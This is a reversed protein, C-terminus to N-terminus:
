IIWPIRSRSLAMRIICPAYAICRVWDRHGPIAGMMVSDRALQCLSVGLPSTRFKNTAMVSSLRSPLHICHPCNVECQMRQLAQCTRLTFSTMICLGYQRVSFQYVSCDPARSDFPGGWHHQGFLPLGSAEACARWLPASRSATSAVM